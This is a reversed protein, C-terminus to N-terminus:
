DYVLVLNGEHFTRSHIKQDYQSKKHEKTVEITQLSVYHYESAHELIILIQELDQAHPLLKIALHLSPSPLVVDEGFVLHFPTFGTSTKVFNIYAWLTPFLMIHRNTKHTSVIQQLM